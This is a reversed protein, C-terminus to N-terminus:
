AEAEGPGLLDDLFSRQTNFEKVADTIEHALEVTRPGAAFGKRIAQTLNTLVDLDSKAPEGQDQMRRVLAVLSNILEVIHAYGTGGMRRTLDEGVYVLRELDSEMEPLSGSIGRHYSVIRDVLFGIQVAYCSMKQENLRRATVDIVQQLSNRDAKGLAKLRMPNPVEVLEASAADSRANRRRDPGIYDHTVVFPRRVKALNGVRELLGDVSLPKILLDDVGANIVRRVMQETPDGTTAITLIFPNLGLTHHRVRHVLDCFDIGRMSIDCLLVDTAPDDLSEMLKSPDHADVIRRFGRSFL